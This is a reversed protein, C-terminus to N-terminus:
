LIILGLVVVILLFGAGVLLLSDGEFERTLYKITLKLLNKRSKKKPQIVEKKYKNDDINNELQRPSPTTSYVEKETINPIVPSIDQKPESTELKPVTQQTETQPQPEEIQRIKPQQPLPKQHDYTMKIVIMKYAQLWTKQGELNEKDGLYESFTELFIQAVLEYHEARVGQRVYRMGMEKLLYDLIQPRRINYVILDLSLMLQKHLEQTDLNNFLPKIDPYKNFLNRYFRTSFEDSDAKIKKLSTELIEVFLSM